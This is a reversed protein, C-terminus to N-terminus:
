KLVQGQANYKIGNKLIILQGNEFLKQAQTNLETNEIATPQKPANVFRAHTGRPAVQAPIANRDIIFYARFGRMSSGDNNPWMLQSNAGLFLYDYARTEETYPDIHVQAFMGQFTIGDATVSGPSTETVTIDTFVPNVINENASPYSILYPKGAEMETVDEVFIDISLAQGSGTVSAGKITKLNNFGALPSAALQTADLSFPLCITNYEGNRYITREVLLQSPNGNNYLNSLVTSPDANDSVTPITISVAIYAPEPIYDSHSADGELKWYVNYDGLASATPIDESWNVGDLSYKLTGGTVGSGANVLELDGGTYILPSKATPVNSITAQPNLITVNIPGFEESDNHTADGVAKYYVEYTTKITGTPISTSWAGSGLKYRMEGGSDSGETVLAQASGTHYLTNATPAATVVAAPADQVLRVSFGFYRNYDCQPYLNGSSFYLCFAGGGSHASTSWYGGFTGVGSVTVTTGGRYGAAPLFVCGQEELKKWNTLDINNTTFNSTTITLSVTTATWGDPMIILGPVTNVTALTRLSSYNTRYILLYSWEQTALTRWGAGLDSSNYVGWDGNAYDGTLTESSARPSVVGYDANTNSTAYPQYAVRAPSGTGEWGSTGWGFLSVVGQSAYDNGVNQNLTEVTSYQENMFSFKGTSKTYQLNAQSFYVKRGGKVSFVGPLKGNADAVAPKASLSTLGMLAFTLFFYFRKM